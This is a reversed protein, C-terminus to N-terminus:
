MGLCFSPDTIVVIMFIYLEPVMSNQLKLLM